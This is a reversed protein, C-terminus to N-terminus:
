RQPAAPVPSPGIFCRHLVSVIDTFPRHFMPSPGIRYRHLASSVDTFPRHFMPSPGICYRHPASSVDTRQKHNYSTKAKFGPAQFSQLKSAQFSPLRSAQFYGSFVVESRELGASKGCTGRPSIRRGTLGKQTIVQRLAQFLTLTPKVYVLEVLLPQGGPAPVRDAQKGEIPIRKCTIIYSKCTPQGQL